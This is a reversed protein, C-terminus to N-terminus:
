EQTLTGIHQWGAEPKDVLVVYLADTRLTGVVAPLTTVVQEPTLKYMGGTGADIALGILGGFVINGWVWGSVKRRLAIEAPQYGELELRVVHLDKRKLEVVAPTAGRPQGNVTIRANTPTSSISVQQRGGHIISACAALLLVSGAALTKRLM